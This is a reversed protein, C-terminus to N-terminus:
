ISSFESFHWFFGLFYQFFEWPDLFDGFYCIFALFILYITKSAPFIRFNESFIALFELIYIYINYFNSQNKEDM